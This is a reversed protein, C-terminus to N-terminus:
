VAPRRLPTGPPSGAEAIPVDAGLAALLARLAPEPLPIRAGANSWHAVPSSGPRGGLGGRRGRAAPAGRPLRRVRGTRVGRLTRRRAPRRAGAPRAPRHGPGPAARKRQRGGRGRELRVAPATPAQGPDGAGADRQRRRTAADGGRQLAPRVPVHGHLRSGTARRWLGRLRDRVSPGRAAAGGGPARHRCRAQGRNIDGRSAEQPGQGPQGRRLASDPRPPSGRRSTPSGRAPNRGDALYAVLRQVTPTPNPRETM